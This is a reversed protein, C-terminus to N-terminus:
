GRTDQAVEEVFRQWKLCIGVVARYGEDGGANVDDNPSGRRAGPRTRVRARPVMFIERHRRHCDACVPHSEASPPPPPPPPARGGPQIQGQDAESSCLGALEIHVLKEWRHSGRMGPDVAAHAGVVLGQRSPSSTTTTSASGRADRSSPSASASASTTGSPYLARLVPQRSQCQSRWQAIRNMPKTSRGVKLCVHTPSSRDLLEYIYLYGRERKDADTLPDSMAVRLRAATLPSLDADKLYTAFPVYRGTEPLHLGPSKNIERVHQHCYIPQLSRRRRRRRSHSIIPDSASDSDSDDVVIANSPSATLTSSKSRESRVSRGCRTGDRTIGWCQGDAPPESPQKTFGLKQQSRPSPSPSPSIQRRRPSPTQPPAAHPGGPRASVFAPPPRPRAVPRPNSIPAGAPQPRPDFPAFAPPPASSTSAFLSEYSPPEATSEAPAASARSLGPGSVGATDATPPHGPAPAVHNIRSSSHSQVRPRIPLPPRAPQVHHRIQGNLQASPESASIPPRTPVSVSRDQHYNPRQFRHSLLQQQRQHCIQSPTRAPPLAPLPKEHRHGGGNAPDLRVSTAM